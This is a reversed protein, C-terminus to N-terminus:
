QIKIHSLKVLTVHRHFVGPHGIPPPIETQGMSGTPEKNISM